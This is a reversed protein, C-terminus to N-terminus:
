QLTQQRRCYRPREFSHSNRLVAMGLAYASNALRQSSRKDVGQRDLCLCTSSTQNPVFNIYAKSRIASLYIGYYVKHSDVIWRDPVAEQARLTLTLRNLGLQLRTRSAEDTAETSCSRHRLAWEAADRQPFDQFCAASCMPQAARAALWRGRCPAGEILSRRWPLSPPCADAAATAACDGGRVAEEALRHRLRSSCRLALLEFRLSPRFSASAGREWCRPLKACSVKHSGLLFHICIQKAFGLQIQVGDLQIQAKGLAKITSPFPRQFSGFRHTKSRMEPRSQAFKGSQGQCPAGKEGTASLRRGRRCRGRAAAQWRRGSILRLTSSGDRASGGGRRRAAPAWRSQGGPQVKASLLSKPVTAGPQRIRAALRDGDRRSGGDPRKWRPSRLGDVTVAFGPLTLVDDPPRGPGPL